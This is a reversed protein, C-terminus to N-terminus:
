YTLRTNRYDATAGGARQSSSSQDVLRTAAVPSELDRQDLGSRRRTTANGVRGLVVPMQQVDRYPLHRRVRLVGIVERAPELRV